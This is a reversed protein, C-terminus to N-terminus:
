SAIGEEGERERSKNNKGSPTKVRNSATKYSTIEKTGDPVKLLPDWLTYYDPRSNRRQSASVKGQADRLLLQEPEL